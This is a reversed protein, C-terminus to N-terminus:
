KIKTITKMKTYTEKKKKWVESTGCSKVSKKKDICKKSNTKPDVHQVTWLDLFWELLNCDVHVSSVQHEPCVIKYEAFKWLTTQILTDM